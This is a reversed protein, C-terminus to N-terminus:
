KASGMIRNMGSNKSFCKSADRLNGLEDETLTLNIIATFFYAPGTVLEV